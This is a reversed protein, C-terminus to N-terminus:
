PTWGQGFCFKDTFTMGYDSWDLSLSATRYTNRNKAATNLGSVIGLYKKLAAVEKKDGGKISAYVNKFTSYYTATAKVYPAWLQGFSLWDSFETHWATAANWLTTCGGNKALRPIPPPTPSPTPTPSPKPTPSPIATPTESPTPSAVAVSGGCGILLLSLVVASVPGVARSFHKM